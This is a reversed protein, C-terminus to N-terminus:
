KYETALKEFDSLNRILDNYLISNVTMSFTGEKDSTFEWDIFGSERTGALISNNLKWQATINVTKNIVVVNLFYSYNLKSTERLATKITLFDKSSNEIAYGKLSLHQGIRKYLADLSDSCVLIITKDGKRPQSFAQIQSGNSIFIKIRKSNLRDLLKKDISKESIFTISEIDSYNMTQKKGYLQTESNAIIEESLNKGSKLIIEAQQSYSVKIISVALLLAITTTKM